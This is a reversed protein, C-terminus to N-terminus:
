IRLGLKKLQDITEKIMVTEAQGVIGIDTKPSSNDRRISSKDDRRIMTVHDFNFLVKDGSPLTCDIWNAM